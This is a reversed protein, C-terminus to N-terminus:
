EVDALSLTLEEAYSDAVANAEDEAEAEECSDVDVLPLAEGLADGATM